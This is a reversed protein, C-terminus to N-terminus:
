MELLLRVLMTAVYDQLVLLNLLTPESMFNTANNTNSSLCLGETNTGSPDNSHHGGHLYLHHTDRGKGLFGIVKM